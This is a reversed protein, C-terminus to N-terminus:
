AVMSIADLDLEKDFEKMRVAEFIGPHLHAINTSTLLGVIKSSNVDQYIVPLEKIKENLMIRVAITLPMESNVVIVPSNMIEDVEVKEQNAGKDIVKQVIDKMSLIGVFNNERYVLLSSVSHQCMKEVAFMVSEGSEISVLDKVMVDAVLLSM